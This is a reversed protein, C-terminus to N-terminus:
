ERRNNQLVPRKEVKLNLTQPKGQRLVKLEAAEGPALGAILNLLSSSDVVDSGNVTLLIDGPRVGGREAPGGRLVGAILAGNAGAYGFSEAIEPTIDQVEVGVWGRVVGGQTIIQQMVQRAISIPIAFGIGMNGGSRSFIATNVGVLHGSSDVLAGGSNGPNIAADTQIYNEFTNIGLHSRGLASVIGMTVTQGVGFPNGIALVVDGVKLSDSAALTISPLGKEAVRLVALDTEPDSGVLKAPLRRGDALAIQIEDASEIVHHNTLLYGDDSIIVGSGLSSVRQPQSEQRGFFHRFIPDELLPNAPSRVQKSTFINVVSPQSRVAAEAYSSTAPTTHGRAAERITIAAQESPLLGPILRDLVLLSALALATAAVIQAFILWFRYM